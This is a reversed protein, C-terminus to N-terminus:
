DLLGRLRRVVQIMSRVTHYSIKWEHGLYNWVPKGERGLLAFWEGGGEWNVFREFVFDHIGAFGEFYKEEEFLKYGDLMGVMVEAHQWFQKNFNVPEGEAPGEIFVGGFKRDIGYELCNDLIRRVVEGYAGRGVGMVDAAHLLLWAFEVNHGYSTYEIPTAGEEHEEDSGWETDFLIAPLPEFDHTFQNYGAGTRSQLMRGVILAIVEELRERHEEKGTMEYLTTLAEMVHMHVDLSKRDGGSRVGAKVRWERDMIEFYGGHGGDAMKEMMVDYTRLAAERGREDETALFYESFAYVGFAQGYGIKDDCTVRGDGDAIWCWGGFEDDWYHELIFNAAHEALEGCRGGGYGERETSSMTFLMRIQMLFTKTTEGTAEGREDFYTLFGGREFDPSREVWFPLLTGTLYGETREILQEIRASDVM